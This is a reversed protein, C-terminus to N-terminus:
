LVLQGNQTKLVTFIRIKRSSITLLEKSIIIFLIIKKIVYFEASKNRRESRMKAFIVNRRRCVFARRNKALNTQLRRDCFHGGKRALFPDPLM